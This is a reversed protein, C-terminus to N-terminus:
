PTNSHGRQFPGPLEALGTGQHVSLLCAWLVEKQEPGLLMKPLGLDLVQPVQPGCLEMKSGHRVTM